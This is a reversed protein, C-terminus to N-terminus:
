GKHFIGISKMAVIVSYMICKASLKYKKKRRIWYFLKFFSNNKLDIAITLGKKKEFYRPRMKRICEWYKKDTESIPEKELFAQYWEQEKIVSLMKIEANGSNSITQSNVRYCFGLQQTNAIGKSTAAIVATIDDSAWALPLKYFGGNKRLQMTDFLFDGIYQQTRNNWRHWILSYVSEYECRAATINTFKGNEDIIETWAHYVGLGPHKEMLKAYEELCCPLLRDDDGMCIIYDGQAYDLCRNWNDVVDVAGCNKENRYYRIRSDKFSNVVSELDEPSADDVIILEFDQYSQALCSEIAESLFKRKYAPITISFRM